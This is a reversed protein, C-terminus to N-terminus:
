AGRIEDASVTGSLSVTVEDAVQMAGMLMSYRRVGFDSHRVVTSGDVQWSDGNGTVRVEIVHQKAKGRIELDGTLRYGDDTAEIDNCGFRIIGHKKSDLCKLANGRILTKEPATLPTLGGEGNLVQLSDVEVTLNVATPRDGSWAVTAQWREMEITLRHGMKAARGAVDTGILMRGHSPDLRWQKGAM